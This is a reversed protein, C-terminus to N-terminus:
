FANPQNACAWTLGQITANAQTGPYRLTGVATPPDSGLRCDEELLQVLVNLTQLFFCFGTGKVVSYSRSSHSDKCVCYKCRSVGIMWVHQHFCEGWEAICQVLAICYMASWKGTKMVNKMCIKVMWILCGPQINSGHMFMRQAYVAPTTLSTCIHLQIAKFLQRAPLIWNKARHKVVRGQFQTSYNM